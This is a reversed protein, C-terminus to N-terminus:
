IPGSEQEAQGPPEPLPRSVRRFDIVDGAHADPAGHERLYRAGLQTVELRGDRVCLFREEVLAALDAMVAVCSTCLGVYVSPSLWGLRARFSISRVLARGCVYCRPREDAKVDELWRGVDLSERESM